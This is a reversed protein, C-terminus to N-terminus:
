IIPKAEPQTDRVFVQHWRGGTIALGTETSNTRSLYM